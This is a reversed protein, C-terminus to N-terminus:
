ASVLPKSADMSVHGILASSPMPFQGALQTCGMVRDVKFVQLQATHLTQPAALDAIKTVAVKKADQRVHGFLRSRMETEHVSVKRGAPQTRNTTRDIMIKAKSIALPRTRYAARHVITIVIGSHINM